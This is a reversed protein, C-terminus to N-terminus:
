FCETYYLKINKVNDQEAKDEDSQTDTAQVLYFFDIYRHPRDEFTYVKESWDDIDPSQVQGLITTPLTGASFAVYMM